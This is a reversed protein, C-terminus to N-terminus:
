QNKEKRLKWENLWGILKDCDSISAPEIQSAHEINGTVWLFGKDRRGYIGLSSQHGHSYKLTIWDLPKKEREAENVSAARIEDTVGHVSDRMKCGCIACDSDFGQPNSNKYIHIKM